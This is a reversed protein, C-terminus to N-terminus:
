FDRRAPFRFAWVHCRFSWRKERFVFASSAFSEAHRRFPKSSSCCQKKLARFVNEHMGFLSERGSFLRAHECVSRSNHRVLTVDFHGQRVALPVRTVALLLPTGAPLGRTLALPVVTVM